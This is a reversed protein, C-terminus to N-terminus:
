RGDDAIERQLQGAEDSALALKSLESREERVADTVDGTNTRAPHTLGSGGFGKRAPDM